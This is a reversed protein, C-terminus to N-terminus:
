VILPKQFDNGKQFSLSRIYNFGFILKDTPVDAFLIKADFLYFHLGTM